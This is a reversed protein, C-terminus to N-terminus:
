GNAYEKALEVYELANDKLSELQEDSLVGRIKAPSGVVLSGDPVVMNQTILSGAGVLCNKGIHAGNLVIAGMGVLSGDDITCGHLVCNHGVTVGDGVVVPFGKDTHVTCNDQINSRKGIKIKDSDARLVSNFWVSSEDGLKVDGILKAGDAVYVDKGKNMNM